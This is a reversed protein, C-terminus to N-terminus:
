SDKIKKLLGTQMLSHNKLADILLKNVMLLATLKCVLKCVM